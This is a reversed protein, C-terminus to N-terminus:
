GCSLAHTLGTTSTYGESHPKAESNQIYIHQRGIRSVVQGTLMRMAYYVHNSGQAKGHWEGFILTQNPKPM